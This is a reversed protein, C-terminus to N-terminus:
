AGVIRRDACDNNCIQDASSTELFIYGSTEQGIKVYALIRLQGGNRPAHMPWEGSFLTFELASIVKADTATEPDDPSASTGTRASGGCNINVKIGQIAVGSAEIDM